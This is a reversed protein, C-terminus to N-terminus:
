VNPARGQGGGGGRAVRPVEVLPPYRLLAPGRAPRSHAVDRRGLPGGSGARWRRVTTRDTLGPVCPAVFTHEIPYRSRCNSSLQKGLIRRGHGVRGVGGGRRGGRGGRLAGLGAALRRRGVARGGGLLGRRRAGALLRGLGGLAGGRGL